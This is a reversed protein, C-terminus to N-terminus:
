GYKTSLASHSAMIPTPMPSASHAAIQSSQYAIYARSGGDARSGSSRASSSKVGPETEPMSRGHEDDLENVLHREGVDVGVHGRVDRKQLLLVRGAVEEDGAALDRSIAPDDQCDAPSTPLNLLDDGLIREVLMM